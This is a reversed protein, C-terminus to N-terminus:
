LDADIGLLAPWGNVHTREFREAGAQVMTRAGGHDREVSAGDERRLGDLSFAQVDM